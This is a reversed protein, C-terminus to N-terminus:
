PRSVTVATGIDGASPLEYASAFPSDAVEVEGYHGFGNFRSAMARGYAGINGFEIYDGESLGVPLTVPRAFRDASDCTPGYLTYEGQACALEGTPSLARAPFPWDLNVADYLAGFGGDNLYLAGDKAGDIRVLLSEAEAVLARGPESWLEASELVMMEEFAQEVLNAYCELAQPAGYTAPFGGGVDVVDVTVAAAAILRSVDAMATPWAGPNMSQSGVHFSVGLRESVARAARLLGPALDENAGFKGTLPVTAGANSVGIRVILTLDRAHGTAELIKELEAHSDLVFRRVGHREYAARIANRNKVPHMFAMTAGPLARAVTEVEAASAVDFGRLGADWLGQLIHRAPNAKVAYFVDGPFQDLFWDGAAKLRHPRYCFVPLDPAKACVFEAVNTWRDM